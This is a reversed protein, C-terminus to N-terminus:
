QLIVRLQHEGTMRAPLWARTAPQDDILVQGPAGHGEVFVNWTAGRYRLGDLRVHELGAPLWPTLAIGEPEFQMGFVSRLWMRIYGTACWTQRPLSKWLRIGKSTEQMGGYIAGTDPHYIEAFQADRTAKETLLRIERWAEDHRGGRTLAECWYANVQPWILADHRGYAGPEIAYRKFSPWLCTMGHASTHFNALVKAAREPDAVGFLLAFALGLGEQHDYRERADVLYLYAQRSENWFQRNIAARLANAKAVAGADEPHDLARAMENVLTYGRYYLCNTSLAFAPFGEGVPHRKDPNKRPWLDIGSYGDPNTYRDPYGAVGDLFCAGGRFLGHEADFETREFYGLSNRTVEHAFTLWQRDGTYLYLDWAGTAWIIADWYQGGIRLGDDARLVCSRLTNRAADPFLLGGGNSTNIAADRTWPTSYGLGAMFCPASQELVGDKWPVVNGLLDGMAIRWGDQFSRDSASLIPFTHIM